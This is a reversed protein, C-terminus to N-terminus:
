NEQRGDGQVVQKLTTLTELGILGRRYGKQNSMGLFVSKSGRPNRSFRPSSNIYVIASDVGVSFQRSERYSETIISDAHGSGHQNIWVIAEEISNIKKFAITKNLYPAAWEGEKALTLHEPFQAVLERDGKLKYGKESLGSFLRTLSGAKHNSHILVKEIANVPDPQSSHSDNIVFRVVDWDGSSAWYLCCNGLASKLVPATAMQVVEQVLSPRGYPIILNLYQDLTILGQISAGEDASIFQVCDKPLGVEELANRLIEAIAGNSQGAESGGRLIIVNGTKIAIAAAIAAIEPFGEYIFAIVGLPMLQCYTQSTNLQYIANRVRQLPDTLQALDLLVAVTKQLREPTLKVWDLLLEPVAMERSAVLDLTNTELIEDAADKLGQAM